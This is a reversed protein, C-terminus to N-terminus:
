FFWIFYPFFLIHLASFMEPFEFIGHCYFWLFFVMINSNIFFDDINADFM